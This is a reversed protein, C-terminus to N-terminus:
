QVKRILLGGMEVHEREVAKVKGTPKYWEYDPKLLQNVQYMASFMTGTCRPTARCHLMAPTTGEDRDITTIKKGCLRCTYQNIKGKYSM